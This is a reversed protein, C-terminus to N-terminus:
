SGTGVRRKLEFRRCKCGDNIEGVTMYPDDGAVLCKLTMVDYAGISLVEYEDNNEFKEVIDGVQFDAATNEKAIEGTYPTYRVGSIERVEIPLGPGPTTATFSHRRSEPVHEDCWRRDEILGIGTGYITSRATAPKGCVDCADGKKVADVLGSRFPNTM